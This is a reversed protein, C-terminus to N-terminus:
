KIKHLNAVLGEARPDCLPPWCGWDCFRSVWPWAMPVANPRMQDCLLQLSATSCQVHNLWSKAIDYLIICHSVHDYQMTSCNFSIMYLHATSFDQFGPLDITQQHKNNEKKQSPTLSYFLEVVALSRQSVPSCAVQKWHNGSRKWAPNTQYVVGNIKRTPNACKHMLTMWYTWHKAHTKPLALKSKLCYQVTSLLRCNSPNLPMEISGFDLWPFCASGNEQLQETKWSPLWKWSIWYLSETAHMDAQNQMIAQLHAISSEAWIMGCSEVKMWWKNQWSMSISCLGVNRNCPSKGRQHLYVCIIASANTWRGSVDREPQMSLFTRERTPMRHGQQAKNASEGVRVQNVQNLQPQAGPQGSQAATNCWELAHLTRFVKTCTSTRSSYCPKNLPYLSSLPISWSFPMTWPPWGSVTKSYWRPM